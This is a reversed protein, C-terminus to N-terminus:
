CPTLIISINIAKFVVFDYQRLIDKDITNTINHDAAHPKPIISFLTFPYMLWSMLTGNMGHVNWPLSIMVSLLGVLYVHDNVKFWCTSAMCATQVRWYDSCLLSNVPSRLTWFCGGVTQAFYRFVYIMYDLWIKNYISKKYEHVVSISFWITIIMVSHKGNM